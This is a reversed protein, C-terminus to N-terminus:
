NFHEPIRLVVKVGNEAGWALCDEASAVGGGPIAYHPGAPVLENEKPHFRPYLRSHYRIFEIKTLKM